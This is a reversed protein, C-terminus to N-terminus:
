PDGAGARQSSSRFFSSAVLPPLVPPPLLGDGLVAVPSDLDRVCGDASDERSQLVGPAEHRNMSNDRKRVERDCRERRLPIPYRRFLPEHTGGCSEDCVSDSFRNTDKSAACDPWLRQGAVASVLEEFGKHSRWRAAYKTSCTKTSGVMSGCRAPTSRNPSTTTMPCSLRRDGYFQPATQATSSPMTRVDSPPIVNEYRHFGSPLEHRYQRCSM